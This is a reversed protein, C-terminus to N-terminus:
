HTENTLFDYDIQRILLFRETYTHTSFSIQNPAFRKAKSKTSPNKRAMKKRSNANCDGHGHNDNFEDDPMDKEQYDDVYYKETKITADITKRRTNM